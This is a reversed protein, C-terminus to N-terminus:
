KNLTLRVPTRESNLYTLEVSEGARAMERYFEAPTTVARGNVKTIVKDPQLRARDAPSDPVVERVIVGRPYETRWRRFFVQRQSLISTYDVRLGFLAPPQKSAVVQKHVDFKALQVMVRQRDGGRAIEIPVNSAALGMAIQLFLDAPKEVLHGNIAIIRDHRQLGARGAPMGPIVDELWVPGRAEENQNMPLTVGLFGYEVEEGRKLVDIIRRVNTDFPIVFGGGRDSTVGVLASTLGIVKGDLDLM